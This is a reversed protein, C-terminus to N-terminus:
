MMTRFRIASAYSVYPILIALYLFWAIDVNCPMGRWGYYILHLACILGTFVFDRIELAKCNCTYQHMLLLLAIFFIPITEYILPDIFCLIRGIWLMLAYFLTSILVNLLM